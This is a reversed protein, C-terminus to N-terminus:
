EGPLLSEMGQVSDFFRKWIKMQERDRFNFYSNHLLIGITCSHEHRHIFETIKKTMSELDDNLYTLFTADMLHLPYETFRYPRNKQLNYPHFPRGFSNRFGHHEPFGLSADYKLESKEVQDYHDPLRFRLFHNRNIEVPEPLKQLEEELIAPFASKHLGHISGAEKIQDWYHLLEKMRFHYDAHDISHMPSLRSKGQETLWFFISRIDYEKEIHLIDDINNWRAPTTLANWLIKPINFYRSDKLALILDSKWASYLYDIDHSWLLRSGERVASEGTLNVYINEFIDRVYNVEMLDRACQISEQFPYRGYKDMKGNSLLTEHLSNLLYFACALPEADRFQDLGDPLNYRAAVVKINGNLFDQFSETMAFAGSSDIVFPTVPLDSLRFSTAKTFITWMYRTLNKHSDPLDLVLQGYTSHGSM